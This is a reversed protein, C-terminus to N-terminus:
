LICSSSYTIGLIRNTLTKVWSPCSKHEQGKEERHPFGFGYRRSRLSHGLWWAISCLLHNYEGSSQLQVLPCGRACSSHLWSLLCFPAHNQLSLSSPVEGSYTLEPNQDRNGTNNRTKLWHSDLTFHNVTRTTPALFWPAPDERSKRCRPTLFSIIGM